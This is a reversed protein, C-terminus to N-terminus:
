ITVTLILGSAMSTKKKVKVLLFPLIERIQFATWVQLSSWKAAEVAVKAFHERFIGKEQKVREVRAVATEDELPTQWPDRCIM